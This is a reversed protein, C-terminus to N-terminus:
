TPNARQAERRPMACALARLGRDAASQAINSHTFDIRKM